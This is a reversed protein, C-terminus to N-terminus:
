KFISDLILNNKKMDYLKFFNERIKDRSIRREKYYEIISNGLYALDDSTILGETEQIGESAISNCFCPLGLSLLELVKIKIGAGYRLLIVSANCKNLIVSPDDQFGFVEIHENTRFYKEADLGIIIYKYNPIEEIIRKHITGLYYKVGDVNESRSFVGFFCLNFNKNDTEINFYNYKKYVPIMIEIKENIKGLLSKDKENVVICNEFTNYIKEEFIYLKIYEFYFFLKKFINKENKYKRDFAQKLVDHIILINKKSNIIQKIILGYLATQSMSFLVIDYNNKKIQLLKIIIKLDMRYVMMCPLFFLFLSRIIRKTNTVNFCFLKNFFDPIKGFDKDSKIIIADIIHSKSLYSLITYDFYKAAGVYSPIIASFYLIRM